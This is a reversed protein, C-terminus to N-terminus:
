TTFVKDLFNALSQRGQENVELFQLGACYRDAMREKNCWVLKAKLDVVSDVLNVQLKLLSNKPIFNNSIIKIGVLSLDKCVTYFYNSSPLTKCEVPFSIGVRPKTRREQM